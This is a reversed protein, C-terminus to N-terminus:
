AHEIDGQPKTTSNFFSRRRRGLRVSNASTSTGAMFATTLDTHSDGAIVRLAPGKILYSLGIDLNWPKTGGPGKVKEWQFRVMPQINGVGVTPTAYAALLYFTDSIRGDLVNYHYYAGEGTVFTGNGLKKEVLGDVNIDAWDKDDTASASGHKQYQAGLSFSLM